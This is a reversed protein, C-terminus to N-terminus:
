GAIRVLSCPESPRDRRMAEDITTLSGVPDSGGREKRQM